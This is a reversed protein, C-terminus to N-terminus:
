KLKNKACKAFPCYPKGAAKSLWICKKCNEYAKETIKM